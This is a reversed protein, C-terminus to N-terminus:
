SIHVVPPMIGNHIQYYRAMRKELSEGGFDYFRWTLSFYRDAKDMKFKEFRIESLAKKFAKRVSPMYLGFSVLNVISQMKARFLKNNDRQTLIKGLRRWEKAKYIEKESSESFIDQVILRYFDDHEVFLAVTEALRISLDKSIGVETLFITLFKLLERAFDCYLSKDEYFCSYNCNPLEAWLIRDNKKLYEYLFKNILDLKWIRPTLLFGLAPLIIGESSFGILYSITDAKVINLKNLIDADPFCKRDFPHGKLKRYIGGELGKDQGKYVDEIVPLNPSELVRQKNQNGLDSFGKFLHPDLKPVMYQEPM